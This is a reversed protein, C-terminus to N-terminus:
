RIEGETKINHTELSHQKAAKLLSLGRATSDLSFNSFSIFIKQQFNMLWFEIYIQLLLVYLHTGAFAYQRNKLQFRLFINQFFCFFFIVFSVSPFLKDRFHTKFTFRIKNQIFIYSSKILVVDIRRLIHLYKLIRQQCYSQFSPLIINSCQKTIFSSM